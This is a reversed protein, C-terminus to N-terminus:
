RGGLGCVKLFLFLQRLRFLQNNHTWAKCKVCLQMQHHYCVHEAPADRSFPPSAGAFHQAYNQVRPAGFHVTDHVYTTIREKNPTKANQRTISVDNLVGFTQRESGVVTSEELFVSILLRTGPSKQVIKGMKEFHSKPDFDKHPLPKSNQVCLKLLKL